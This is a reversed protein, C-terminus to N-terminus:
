PAIRGGLWFGGFWIAGWIPQALARLVAPGPCTGSLGWGIGFAAAGIVFKRDIDKFTKTPLKFTDAFSPPTSFGKRQIEILNPIVGFIIVLMLSPDWQHLVPFSLFSTVKAPHAMGSIQLGLAFLLGSFFQTAERARSLSGTQQKDDHEAPALVGQLTQPVLRAALISAAAILILYGTTTSSPYVPTYCPVGSPCAETHLTPHLIHHTLIATPFFIAVATTSRGSLRSLGCLM